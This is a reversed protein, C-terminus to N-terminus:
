RKGEQAPCITLAERVPRLLEARKWGRVDGKMGMYMGAGGQLFNCGM